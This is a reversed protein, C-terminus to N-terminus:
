KGGKVIQSHRTEWIALKKKITKYQSNYTAVKKNIDDMSNALKYKNGISIIGYEFNDVDHNIELIIGRVDSPELGCALGLEISNYSLPINNAIKNYVVQKLHEVGFVKRGLIKSM